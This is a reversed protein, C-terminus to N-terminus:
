ADAAARDLNALMPHVGWQILHGCFPLNYHFDRYMRMARWSVFGDSQAFRDLSEADRFPTDDIVVGSRDIWCMRVVLCTEERLVFQKSRYAKGEWGRLSLADGPEIRRKRERRISHVKEGSRIAKWFRPEFLLVNPM